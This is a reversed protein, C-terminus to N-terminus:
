RQDAARTASKRWDEAAAIRKSIAPHSHFFWEVFRSPEREAMNQDALKNMSSIFPTVDPISKLAYRDAEREKSRSYANMLPMLLFSMVTSTLVLLPLNAFDHLSEFMGRVDVAYHLIEATIWFGFFSIVVEVVIGKVIHNHVHHGLEHALVSEIEEESYNELLTDALIIRRTAGLGALAANAKKSKESLEWEYVERVHTGARDSLRLLRTRLSENELPRFKYFLPFLVVPAIQAFFVSLVIFVAWAIMWWHQPSIRITWYILEVLVTGIVLTILWTKTQDWVWSRTRQNSLNYRHELRFGYYDLGFGIVKSIALLLGVYFFVALTYHQGAGRYSWDRLDSTWGTALLVVLFALGILFDALELRRHIRNYHRTEPSDPKASSPSSDPM